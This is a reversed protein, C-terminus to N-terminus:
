GAPSHLQAKQSSLNCTSAPARAALSSRKASMPNSIDAATPPAPTASVRESSACSANRLPRRTNGTAPMAGALQPLRCTARQGEALDPSASTRAKTSQSTECDASVTVAVRCSISRPAPVPPQRRAGSGADVDSGSCVQDGAQAQRASAPLGCATIGVALCAALPLAQRTGNRATRPAHRDHSRLRAGLEGCLATRLRRVFHGLDAVLHDFGAHRECRAERMYLSRKIEIQLSHRGEAPRGHRRMLEAGDCPGQIGVGYGLDRLAEAVWTVLRPDASRGGSESLMLDPRPMGCDTDMLNGVSRMSQCDIHVCFGHAAHAQDALRDLCAHYPDYCSQLRQQIDALQLPRPYMPVGPLAHRRILGTGRHRGAQPGSLRPWPEALLGPDIDDRACNADIYAPHFRAALLPAAGDIAEAWIEHVWADWSTDLQMPTALTRTAAAPWHRWSHPSDFVLPSVPSVPGIVTLSPQSDPLCSM